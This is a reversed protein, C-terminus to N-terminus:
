IHLQMLPDAWYNTVKGHSFYEDVVHTFSERDRVFKLLLKAQKRKTHLGPRGIDDAQVRPQRPHM